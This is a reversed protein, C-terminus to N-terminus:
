NAARRISVDGSLSRAHVTVTETDDGPADTPDLTSSVSGSLSQADLWAATGAVIGIEVDGSATDIEVTGRRVARVQVDGSATRAAVSGDARGIAVDGSASRARADGGVSTVEIDGSATALEASGSVAGLRADGSATTVSAAGGVARCTVDGSATHAALEAVQEIAVDGSATTVSARGLQGALEVDASKVDVDVRSDVPVVARVDLKPNRGFWGKTSPAIVVITDGRQEVVTAAALEVDASSDPNGPRVDVTTITPDEGDAVTRVSLRGAAFRTSLAAPGPTTFSSM